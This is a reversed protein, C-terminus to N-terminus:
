RAPTGVSIDLSFQRRAGRSAPAVSSDMEDGREDEFGAAGGEARAPASM